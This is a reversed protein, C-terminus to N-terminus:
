TYAVTCSCPQAAVQTFGLAATAYTLTVPGHMTLNTCGQIFFGGYDLNQVLRQLGLKLAPCSIIAHLAATHEHTSSSM